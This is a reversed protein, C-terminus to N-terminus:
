AVTQQNLSQAVASEVDMWTENVTSAAHLSQGQRLRTRLQPQLQFNKLRLLMVHWTELFVLQLLCRVLLEVAVESETWTADCQIQLRLVNQIPIQSDLQAGMGRGVQCEGEEVEEVIGTLTAAVQLTAAQKKLRALRARDIERRAALSPLSVQQLNQGFSPAMYGLFGYIVPAATKRAM